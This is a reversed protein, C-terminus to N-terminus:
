TLSILNCEKEILLLIIFTIKIVLCVSITKSTIKYYLFFFSTSLICAAFNIRFRSFHKTRRKQSSIISCGVMKQMTYFQIEDNNSLILLKLIMYEM